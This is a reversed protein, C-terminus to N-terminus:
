RRLVSLRSLHMATCEGDFIKLGRWFTIKIIVALRCVDCVNKSFFDINTLSNSRGLFASEKSKDFDKTRISVLAAFEDFQAFIFLAIRPLLCKHAIQRHSHM